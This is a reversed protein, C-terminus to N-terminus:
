GRGSERQARAVAQELVAALREPHDSGILYQKGARTRVKVGRNGQLFYAKMERNFRIGYGGFDALPSFSHVVVETLDALRFKGLPVGWVGLRVELREPTVLVRLGGYVLLTAVATAVLVVPVLGFWPSDPHPGVVLVVAAALTVIATSVSLLNAWWPAQKEWYIWRQDEGMQDSLEARLDHEEETAAPQPRPRCPRLVELVVAAAVGAAATAAMAGWPLAFREAGSVVFDLHGWMMGAMLGVSLEDMASLWNFAKRGEQRAWLEDLVASLVIFGAMMGVLAAAEWPSGWRDPRGSLSFHWPVHAPLPSLRWLKWLVAALLVLAPLHTWLPHYLRRRM